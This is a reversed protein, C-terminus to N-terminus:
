SNSSDSAKPEDKVSDSHAKEEAQRRAVDRLQAASVFDPVDEPVEYPSPGILDDPGVDPDGFDARDEAVDFDDRIEDNNEIRQLMLARQIQQALTLRPPRGLGVSLEFPTSDVVERGRSDLTSM